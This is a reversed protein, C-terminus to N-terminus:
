RGVRDFHSVLSPSESSPFLHRALSTGCQQVRCHLQTLEAKESQYLPAPPHGRSQLFHQGSGMHQPAGPFGARFSRGPCLLLTGQDLQERQNLDM